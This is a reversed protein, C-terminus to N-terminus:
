DNGLSQDVVLFWRCRAYHGGREVGGAARTANTTLVISSSGPGLTLGNFQQSNAATSGGKVTLNTGNLTLSSNNATNNIINTTPAGAASFDLTLSGGNVTTAGSYTNPGTLTLTGASSKTVAGLGTIAGSYSRAAAYDLNLTSSAIPLSTTGTYTNAGSLTLTGNPVTFAINTKKTGGSTSM